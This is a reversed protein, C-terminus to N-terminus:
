MKTATTIATMKHTNFNTNRICNYVSTYRYTTNPVFVPVTQGGETM